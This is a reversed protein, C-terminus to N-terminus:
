NNQLIHPSLYNLFFFLNLIFKNQLPLLKNEMPILTVEWQLIILQKYESWIKEVMYQMQWITEYKRSCEQKWFGRIDHKM